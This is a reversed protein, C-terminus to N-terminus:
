QYPLALVVFCIMFILISVDSGGSPQEQKNIIKTNIERTIANM